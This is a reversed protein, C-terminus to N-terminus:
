AAALVKRIHAQCVPCFLRDTRDMLCEATPRFRGRERYRAGEFTGVVGLPAPPRVGAACTPDHPFGPTVMAAWPARTANRRDTVNPELPTPEPVPQASNTYEDALGFSHGLEHLAVAQWSENPGSTTTVWAPRDKSGGAGGRINRNILVM